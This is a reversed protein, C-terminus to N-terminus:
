LIHVFIKECCEDSETRSEAAATANRLVGAVRITENEVAAVSAAIMFFDATGVMTVMCVRFIVCLRELNVARIDVHNAGTGDALRFAEFKEAEYRYTQCTFRFGDVIHILICAVAVAGRFALGAVEDIVGDLAAAVVAEEVALGNDSCRSVKYFNQRGSFAHILQDGAIGGARVGRLRGLFRRFGCLRLGSFSSASLESIIQADYMECGTIWLPLLTNKMVLAM